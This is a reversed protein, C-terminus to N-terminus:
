YRWEGAELRFIETVASRRAPACRAPVAPACTLEHECYRLTGVWPARADGTARLEVEVDDLVEFRRGGVVAKRRKELWTKAFARFSAEVEANEAARSARAPRECLTLHSAPASAPARARPQPAPQCAAALLAGALLLSRGCGHGAGGNV